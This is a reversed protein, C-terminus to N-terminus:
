VLQPNIHPDDLRALISELKKNGFIKPFSRSSNTNNMM